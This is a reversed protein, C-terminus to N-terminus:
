NFIGLALIMGAILCVFGFLLYKSPWKRQLWCELLGSILPGTLVLASLTGLHGFKLASLYFSLSLFTGFFSAGIALAQDRRSLARFQSVLQIPQIFAILGFIILAGSCRYLNAQLPDLSPSLDFSWRTLLVGVNDLLVGALAFLLGKIEWHGESKYRELSLVFLCLLFFFIAAAHTWELPQGFLFSGAIAMVVPQFGFVLITRSAGMRAFGRLLFIDGIGLGIAGSIFLAAISFASASTWTATFLLTACIAMWCVAVKVNNMWASSIQKSFRAFVISATSFCCSAAFALLIATTAPSATM